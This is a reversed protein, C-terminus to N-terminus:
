RGKQLPGPALIFNSSMKGKTLVKPVWHKSFKTFNLEDHIITQVSGASIRVIKAMWLGHHPMQGLCPWKEANVQAVSVRPWRAHPMNEVETQGKFLKVGTM